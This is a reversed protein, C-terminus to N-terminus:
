DRKLLILKLKLRFKYVQIKRLRSKIVVWAKWAVHGLQTVLYDYQTVAMLQLGHPLDSVKPIARLKCRPPAFKPFAPQIHFTCSRPVIESVEFHVACSLTISRWACLYIRRFNFQQCNASSHPLLSSTLSQRTQKSERGIACRRVTSDSNSPATTLTLHGNSLIM